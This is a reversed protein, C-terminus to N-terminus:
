CLPFIPALQMLTFYDCFELVILYIHGYIRLYAYYESNIREGYATKNRTSFVFSAARSSREAIMILLRMVRRILGSNMLAM